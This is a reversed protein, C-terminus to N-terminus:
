LTRPQSLKIMSLVTNRPYWSYKEVINYADICKNHNYYRHYITAVLDAIRIEDHLESSYFNINDIFLKGAIRFHDNEKIMYKRLFPHMKNIWSQLIPLPERSSLDRLMNRLIELWFKKSTKQKIFTEDIKWELNVLDNDIHKCASYWVANYLSNYISDVLTIAKAYQEYSLRKTWKAFKMYDNALETRGDKKYETIVREVSGISQQIQQKVIMEPNEKAKFGVATIGITNRSRFIRKAITYLARDDLNKSKIEGKKNRVCQDQAQEWKHLRKYIAHQIIESSRIHIAIFINTLTSNRYFDGAEDIAIIM